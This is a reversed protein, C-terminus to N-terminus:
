LRMRWKTHIVTSLKRQLRISDCGMKYTLRNIYIEYMINLSYKDLKHVKYMLNNIKGRIM